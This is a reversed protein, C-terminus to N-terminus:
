TRVLILTALGGGFGVLNLLIRSATQQGPVTTPLLGIAPDVRGFGPTAPIRNVALCGLLASLEAIGSAGLTHGLYPKLSLLPPMHQAFVRRLANAEALDTAPSGAAQLKLLDIDSAALDAAQLSDQMLAALPGGDPTVATPSWGDLGTRVDAIRWLGAQASLHVAAVAEGLVLGDRDADLPRCAAPSLLQMAAFGALTSDNALECGIVLAEDIVGGAILCHAAELASFGAICANAFNYPLGDLGLWGVIEHSFIGVARPLDHGGAREIRGIQLSSSALFVPIDRPLRGLQGAVLRVATEARRNWDTDALPLAYYPFDQAGVARRGCYIEGAWLREAIEAPESGAACVLAHAAIYVPRKM